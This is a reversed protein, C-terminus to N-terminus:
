FWGLVRHGDEARFIRSRASQPLKELVGGEAHCGYCAEARKKVIRGIEASNSSFMIRGAKNFVRVVEIGEQRGIAEIQRHLSSRRNELMDNHTSRKITESLQDASRHVEATRDGEHARLIPLAVLAMTGAIVASVGIVFRVGIRRLV